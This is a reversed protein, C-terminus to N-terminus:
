SNKIKYIMDSLQFFNSLNNQNLKKQIITLKKTFIRKKKLNKKILDLAKKFTLM